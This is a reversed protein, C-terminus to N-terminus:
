FGSKTFDECGNSDKSQDITGLPMKDDLTASAFRWRIREYNIKFNKNGKIDMIFYFLFLIAGLILGFFDKAEREDM